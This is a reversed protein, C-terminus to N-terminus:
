GEIFNVLVASHSGGAAVQLVHRTANLHREGETPHHFLHTIDHPICIRDAPQSTMEVGCRGYDLRGVAFVRDSETCILTHSGGASVAKVAFSSNSNSLSASPSLSASTPLDVHHVVSPVTKSKECGQGLRGYEGKGCTFLTGNENM